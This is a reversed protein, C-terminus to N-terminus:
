TIIGEDILEQEAKNRANLDMREKILLERERTPTDKEWKLDAEDQIKKRTTKFDKMLEKTEINVQDCEDDATGEVVSEYEADTQIDVMDDPASGTRLIEGTRNDYVIFDKM